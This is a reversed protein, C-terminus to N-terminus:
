SWFLEPECGCMPLISRPLIFQFISGISLQVKLCVPPQIFREVLNGLAGGIALGFGIAGLRNRIRIAFFLILIGIIELGAVISGHGKGLGFAVGTNTALHLQLLGDITSISPTNSLSSLAWNT